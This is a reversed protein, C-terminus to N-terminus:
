KKKKGSKQDSNEMNNLKKQAKGRIKAILGKKRPAAPVAGGRVSKVSTIYIGSIVVKAEQKVPLQEFVQPDSMLTMVRPGIKAKVIPVKARRLYKPTQELVQKPLSTCDRLRMKKKDIILMSVTQAMADMQQKQEAQRKQMKRGLFFLVAFVAVVVLLIIVLVTLFTDIGSAALVYHTNM